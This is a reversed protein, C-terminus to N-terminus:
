QYREYLKLAIASDTVVEKNEEIEILRESEEFTKMRNFSSLPSGQGSRLAGRQLHDTYAEERHSESQM